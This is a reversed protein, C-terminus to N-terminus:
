NTFAFHQNPVKETTISNFNNTLFRWVKPHTNSFKLDNRGDVPNNNILIFETNKSKIEEIMIDQQKERAPYVCFIDYIAPQRKLLPYFTLITPLFVVFSNDHSYKNVLESVEKIYNKQSKPITIEVSNIKLKSYEKPNLLYKPWLINKWYANYFSLYIFPILVFWAWLTTQSYAILLLLYALVAQAIHNVDTRSSAHHFYTLGCCSLIMNNRLSSDMDNSLLFVLITMGYVLPMSTFLIKIFIKHPTSLNNLQTTKKNWIWPLPLRLNAQGRDLVKLIKNQWYNSRLKPSLIFGIVIPMFGIFIGTIVGLFDEYNILSFGSLELLLFILVLSLSAYLGHNLGFLYCLCLYIGLLLCSSYNPDPFLSLIIFPTLISFLFDIQKHRPILWPVICLSLLSTEFINQTVTHILIMCLLLTLVQTVLQALRLSLLSKGFVLCWITMWYYRGPDYARFDKIPIKKNITQLTGHWLYGEDGMNLGFKLDPAYFIGIFFISVILLITVDYLEIQM